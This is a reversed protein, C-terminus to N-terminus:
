ALPMLDRIIKEALGALIRLQTVVAERKLDEPEGLTVNFDFTLTSAFGSGAPVVFLDRGMELPAWQPKLTVPLSPVEFDPFANTLLQGGDITIGTNAVAVSLLLRHKDVRELENITWLLSDRGTDWPELKVGAEVLAGPAGKLKAEVEKRWQEPTPTQRKSNNWVPFATQSCRDQPRVTAWAFHDLASRVNHAADGVILPVIPPLPSIRTVRYSGAGTMPTGIAQVEYPKTAWFERIAIELDDAHKRARDIKWLASEFREIV